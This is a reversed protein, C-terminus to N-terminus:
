QHAVSLAARVCDTKGRELVAVSKPVSVSACRCENSAVGQSVIAVDYELQLLKWTTAVKQEHVRNPGSYAPVLDAAAKTM